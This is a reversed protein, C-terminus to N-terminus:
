SIDLVGLKEGDTILVTLLCKNFLKSYMDLAQCTALFIFCASEAWTQVFPYLPSQRKM